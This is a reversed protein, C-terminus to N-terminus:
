KKPRGERRRLNVFQAEGLIDRVPQRSATKGIPKLKATLLDFAQNVNPPPLTTRYIEKLCDRIEPKTAIRLRADKVEQSKGLDSKNAESKQGRKVINRATRDMLAKLNSGFTIKPVKFKAVM